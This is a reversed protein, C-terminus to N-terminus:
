FLVQWHGWATVKGLSEGMVHTLIHGSPTDRRCTLLLRAPALARFGYAATSIPATGRPGPLVPVPLALLRVPRSLRPRPQAWSLSM